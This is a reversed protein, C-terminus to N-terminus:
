KAADLMYKVAAKVEADTLSPNGGKPPMIGTKGKFGVIANKELAPIGNKIRAAWDKKNGFKPAGMIGAIHCLKCTKEYTAKGDAAYSSNTLTLGIIAASCVSLLIKRKFQM